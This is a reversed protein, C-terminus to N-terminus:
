PQVIPQTEAMGRAITSRDELWFAVDGQAIEIQQMTKGQKPDARVEDEILAWTEQRVTELDAADIADSVEGVAEAFAEWCAADAFCRKSLASEAQAPAWSPDVFSSDFGQPLLWARGDDPHFYVRYNNTNWTYGDFQGVWLEAALQRVLIDTEIVDDAAALWDATDDAAVATVAKVDALAVDEGEELELLEQGEATFDGKVMSNPVLGGEYLNGGDAGPFTRELWGGTYPEVVAYLGYPEGDVTITAYSVRAHPLGAAEMAAWALREHVMSIDQVMNHLQLSTLGDLDQEEYRDLSVRFSPKGDLPRLTAGGKLRVGVNGFAEGDITVDGPVYSKPDDELAARSDYPLTIAIRHVVDPDYLGDSEIPAAPDTDEADTDGTTAPTCALLASLILM